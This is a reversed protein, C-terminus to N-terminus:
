TLKLTGAWTAGKKNIVANFAEAMILMELTKTSDGLKNKIATFDAGSLHIVEGTLPQFDVENGNVDEQFYGAQIHIDVDTNTLNDLKLIKFGQIIGSMGKNTMPTTFKWRPM